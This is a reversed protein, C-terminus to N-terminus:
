AAEAETIAARIQQWVEITTFHLTKFHGKAPKSNEIPGEPYDSTWFADMAKLAELLKPAAAILRANALAELDFEEVSQTGIPCYVTAVGGNESRVPIDDHETPREFVKWPGPTHKQPHLTM